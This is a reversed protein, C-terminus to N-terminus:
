PILKVRVTIDNDSAAAVTKGFYQNAGSEDDATIVHNGNDWYVKTGVSIASGSGAAKPLEFIGTVSIAGLEGKNIDVNAVGVLDGQVVVYGAPCFNTPTYDITDGKQIMRATM